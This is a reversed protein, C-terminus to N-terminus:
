SSSILVSTSSSTTTSSLNWRGIDFLVAECINLAEPFHWHDKPSSSSLWSKKVMKGAQYDSAKRYYLKTCATFDFIGVGGINDKKHPRSDTHTKVTFPIEIKSQVIVFYRRQNQNLYYLDVKYSGSTRYWEGGAQRFFSAIYKTKIISTGSDKKAGSITPHRRSLLDVLEATLIQRFPWKTRTSSHSM